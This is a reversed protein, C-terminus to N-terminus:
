NGPLLSDAPEMEEISGLKQEISFLAVAIMVTAPDIPMIM